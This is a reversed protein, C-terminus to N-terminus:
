EDFQDFRGGDRRRIARNRGLIFSFVERVLFFFFFDLLDACFVGDKGLDIKGDNRRCKCIAIREPIYIELNFFIRRYKRHFFPFSRVPSLVVEEEKEQEFRRRFGM